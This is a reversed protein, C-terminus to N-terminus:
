RREVDLVLGTKGIKTLAWQITACYSQILCSTNVPYKRHIKQIFILTSKALIILNDLYFKHFSHTFQNTKQGKQSMAKDRQKGLWKGFFFFFGLLLVMM